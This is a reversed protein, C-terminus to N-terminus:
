TTAEVERLRGAAIALVITVGIFCPLLVRDLETPYAAFKCIAGGSLVALLSVGHSTGERAVNRLLCLAIVGCFAAAMLMESALAALVGEQYISVYDRLQLPSTFSKPLVLNEVFTHYMLTKWGYNGSLTAQLGYVAAGISAWAFSALKSLRGAVWCAVPLLLVFVVNDPRAMTSAVLVLMAGHVKNCEFCLYISLLVLLCALVDPSIMRGVHTIPPQLMIVLSALLTARPSLYRRLWVFVLAALAWYSVLTILRGATILGAGGFNIAAMLFPYLPKVSYFPIQQLFSEPREAAARRYDNGEIIKEFAEPSLERSLLSYTAEHLAHEPTGLLSKAIAAYPVLDWNPVANRFLGVGILVMIAAYLFPVWARYVHEAVRARAVGGPHGIMPHRAEDPAPLQSCDEQGDRM